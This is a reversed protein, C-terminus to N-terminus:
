PEILLRKVDAILREKENKANSDKPDEVGDYYGRITGAKDVLVIKSSHLIPDGPGLNDELGLKFGEVSLQYLDAKKGTLFLWRDDAGFGTAYTQLAELTDHEPDTTISLCRVGDEGKFARHVESMRSNLDKCFSPCSAFFFNVVWVRGKLEARKFERGSREVAAFEPLPYLKPLPKAQKCAPLGLVAVLLLLRLATM